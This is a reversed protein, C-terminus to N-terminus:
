MGLYAKKILEDELLAQAKGSNTVRGCCPGPSCGIPFRRGSHHNDQKTKWIREEKKRGRGIAPFTCTRLGLIDEDEQKDPKEM